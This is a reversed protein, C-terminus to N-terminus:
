KEAMGSLWEWHLALGQELEVVPKWGFVEGAKSIDLYTERVDFKRQTEYIVEPVHQTTRGILEIMRNISTGKGSGANFIGTAESKLTLACLEALDSVYLYDRIVEGDGWVALSKGALIRNFFSGVLGQVGLRGQRPGFPNSARLIVPKFDYLAAYMGLYHEIAVKTVGYSCLPKISEDERVPLGSPEGYVTGGSSVFIVRKPGAQRMLELMRVTGALNVNIDAVPDLNSTAPVTSSALHIVADVGSLSESLYFTNALDGLYYEVGPLPERYRELQRSYVRVHHGHRLLADCVHSGIFGTGGTVLVNM